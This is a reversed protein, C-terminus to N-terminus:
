SKERERGGSFFELVKSRRRCITSHAKAESAKAQLPAIPVEEVFGSM